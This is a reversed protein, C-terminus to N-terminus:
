ISEREESFFVGSRLNLKPCNLLQNVANSRFVNNEIDRHCNKWCDTMRATDDSGRLTLHWLSHNGPLKYCAGTECNTTAFSFLPSRFLLRTLTRRYQGETYRYVCISQDVHSVTGRLEYTRLALQGELSLDVKKKIKVRIKLADFVHRCLKQRM